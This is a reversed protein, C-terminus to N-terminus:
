VHRHHPILNAGFCHARGSPPERCDTVPATDRLRGRGFSDCRRSTRNEAAVLVITEGVFAVEGAKRILADAFMGAAEDEHLIYM